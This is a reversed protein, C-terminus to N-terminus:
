GLLVRMSGHKFCQHSQLVKMNREVKVKLPLVKMTNVKTIEPPKIYTQQKLALHAVQIQWPAPHCPSFNCAYKNAHNPSM